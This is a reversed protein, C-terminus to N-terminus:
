AQDLQVTMARVSRLLGGGILRVMDVQHSAQRFVPGGGKSPDLEEPLRPRYIWDTYHWTHLMGLKGFQGSQALEALKRITKAMSQTHGAMQQVSHRQAAANIAECEEPRIAMPRSDFVHKGGA